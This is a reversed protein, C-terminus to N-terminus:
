GKEARGHVSTVQRRAQRLKPVPRGSADATMVERGEADTEPEMLPEGTRPDLVAQERTRKTYLYVYLAKGARDDPEIEIKGGSGAQFEYESDAQVGAKERLEGRLSEVPARGVILIYPQSEVDPTNPNGFMVNIGDVLEM